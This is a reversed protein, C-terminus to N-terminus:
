VTCEDTKCKGKTDLPNYTTCRLNLLREFNRDM